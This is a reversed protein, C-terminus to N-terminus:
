FLLHKPCFWCAIVGFLLAAGEYAASIPIHGLVPLHNQFTYAELVPLDLPAFLSALLFVAWVPSSLYSM